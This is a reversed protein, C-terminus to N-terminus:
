MLLTPLIYSGIYPATASAALLCQVMATRNTMGVAAVLMMEGDSRKLSLKLVAKWDRVPLLYAYLLM